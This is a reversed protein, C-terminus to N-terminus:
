RCGATKRSALAQDSISKSASPYRNPLAGLATCGEKKQSMALLSQGLKLMSEPARPSSPYKKLEEAFARAASAYDKQVYAIDGVWYIAQPALEDKPYTDAFSRFAASAEDYQAKALLNLASEFQPRADLSAFQDPPAQTSAPPADSRSLTGLIGPPPALRTPGSSAPAPPTSPGITVSSQQPQQQVNCPLAAQQDGPETQAGLQQAALSCLKYDFDKQMRTMREGLETVRHDLQEIEGTLRRLTEELDSIRQTQTAINQDQNQEHQERAAKEEDSEGFLGAVQVSRARAQALKEELATAESQAQIIQADLTQVSEPQAAVAGGAAARMITLALISTWAVRLGGRSVKEAMSM